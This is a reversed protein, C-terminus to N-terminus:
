KPLLFILLSIYNRCNSLISMCSIKVSSMISLGRLEKGCEHFSTILQGTVFLVNEDSLAM